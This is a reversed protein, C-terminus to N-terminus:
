GDTGRPAGSWLATGPGTWATGAHGPIRVGSRAASSKREASTGGDEAATRAPREQANGRTPTERADADSVAADAPETGKTAPSGTTNETM